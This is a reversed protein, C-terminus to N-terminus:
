AYTLNEFLLLSELITFNNRTIYNRILLHLYMVTHQNGKNIIDINQM